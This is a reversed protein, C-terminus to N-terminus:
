TSSQAKYLLRFGPPLSSDTIRLCASRTDLNVRRRQSLPTVKFMSFLENKWFGISKKPYTPCCGFPCHPFGPFVLPSRCTRLCPLSLASACPVAQPCVCSFACLTIYYTINLNHDALVAHACRAALPSAARGVVRDAIQRLCVFVGFHSTRPQELAPLIQMCSESKPNETRMDKAFVYGRGFLVLPPLGTCPCPDTASVLGACPSNADFFHEFM